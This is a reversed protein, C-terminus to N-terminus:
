AARREQRRDDHDRHSDTPRRDYARPQEDVWGRKNTRSRSRDRHTGKERYKHGSKGM